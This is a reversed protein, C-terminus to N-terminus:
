ANQKEFNNEDFKILSEVSCESDVGKLHDMQVEFRGVPRSLHRSGFQESLM